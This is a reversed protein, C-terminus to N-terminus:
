TVEIERKRSHPQKREWYLASTPIMFPLCLIIQARTSFSSQPLRQFFFYFFGFVMVLSLVFRCEPSFQLTCEWPLLMQNSLSLLPAPNIIELAYTTKFLQKSWVPDELLVHIFKSNFYKDLFQSVWKQQRIQRLNETYDIACVINMKHWKIPIKHM